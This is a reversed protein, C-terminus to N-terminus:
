VDRRGGSEGLVPLDIELAQLIQVLDLDGGAALDFSFQVQGERHIETHGHQRIDISM